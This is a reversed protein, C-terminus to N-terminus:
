IFGFQEMWTKRILLNGHSSMLLIIGKWSEFREYMVINQLFANVIVDYHKSHVSFKWEFVRVNNFSGFLKPLEPFVNRIDCSKAFLTISVYFWFTM